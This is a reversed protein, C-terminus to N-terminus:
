ESTARSDEPMVCFCDEDDDVAGILEDEFEGAVAEDGEFADVEFEDEKEAGVNGHQDLNLGFLSGKTYEEEKVQASKKKVKLRGLRYAFVFDDSSGWEVDDGKQTQVEIEPGIEVPAALATVDVGVSLAGGHGRAKNSKIKGGRVIKLGTVM